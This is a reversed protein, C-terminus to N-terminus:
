QASLDRLIEKLGRGGPETAFRDLEEESFPCSSSQPVLRGLVKGELNCIELEEKVDRLLRLTGPDLKVQTM